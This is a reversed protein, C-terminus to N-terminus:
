YCHVFLTVYIHITYYSFIAHCYKPKMKLDKSVFIKSSNTNVYHKNQETSAEPAQTGLWLESTIPLYFYTFYTADQLEANVTATDDATAPYVYVHFESRLLYFCKWERIYYM